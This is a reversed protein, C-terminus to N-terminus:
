TLVLSHVLVLNELALVASVIKNECCALLLEICLLTELIFGLSALGAPIGAFVCSFCGALHEVSDASVTTLFTLNREIRGCAFCNIAALAKRCATAVVSYRSFLTLSARRRKKDKDIYM